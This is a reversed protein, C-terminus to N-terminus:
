QGLFPTSYVPLNVQPFPLGQDLDTQFLRVWKCTRRDQSGTEQLRHVERHPQSIVFCKEGRVRQHCSPCQQRGYIGRRLCRRPDRLWSGSRTCYLPPPCPGKKMALGRVTWHCQAPEIEASFTSVSKQGLGCCMSLFM